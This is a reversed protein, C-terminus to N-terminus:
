VSLLVMNTIRDQVEAVTTEIDCFCNLRCKKDFRLDLPGEALRHGRADGRDEGDREEHEDRRARDDEAIELRVFDHVNALSVLISPDFFIIVSFM